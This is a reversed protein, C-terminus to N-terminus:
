VTGAVGLASSRAPRLRHGHEALLSAFALAGQGTMRYLRRRPRGAEREDIDEWWHELWGEAELRTLIPQVTGPQLGTRKALQYSWQEDDDGLFVEVVKLTPTTVREISM